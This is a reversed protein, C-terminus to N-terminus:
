RGTLPISVIDQRAGDKASYVFANLVVQGSPSGLLTVDFTGRTGSGSTAMVRQELLKKGRADELELFFVAEFTNATGTVRLPTRASEGWRPTEVLVAPSLREYDDRGVPDSLDVGEGGLATVRRGDLMLIVRDVTPFRTLTFVLQAVRATMSFSGGGDDFHGSLDVTALGDRITLGRLSTGGPITSTLGGAREAATPGALLARVATAAVGTGTAPRSVPQVDEGRLLYVSVGSTSVPPQTTSPAAGATPGPSTTPPGTPTGTPTGSVSPSPAPEDDDACASLTLVLVTPVVLFRSRRV